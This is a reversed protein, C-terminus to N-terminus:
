KADERRYVPVNFIGMKNAFVLGKYKTAAEDFHYWKWLNVVVRQICSGCATKPNEERKIYNSTGVLSNHLKFMEQKLEGKPLGSGTLGMFIQKKTM